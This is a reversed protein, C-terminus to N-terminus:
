FQLAATLSAVEGASEALIGTLTEAGIAMDLSATMGEGQERGGLRHLPSAVPSLEEALLLTDALTVPPMALFGDWYAEIAIMVPQPVALVKLVARGVDVEGSEIWDTLEGDLLGPFDKARSLLYFGGVEHVIGAFLATEPDQRTIRRAIVHALSAVHATHQWLQAALDQGAPGAPAGALQRTVLATALSRVTRFGLRAVATRVDTIERGSRNFAVSNAIAVVRAALLPEAQVLHAAADIHCGPDDLARRVRMAVQASTPFALEGQAVDAAMATFADRKDM